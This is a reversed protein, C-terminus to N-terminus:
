DIDDQSIYCCSRTLSPKGNAQPILVEKTRLFGQTERFSFFAEGGGGWSVVLECSM